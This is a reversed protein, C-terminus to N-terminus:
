NLNWFKIQNDDAVSILVDEDNLSGFSVKNIDCSDEHASEINHLVSFLGDNKNSNLVKISGDGSGLAILSRKEDKLFCCTYVARSCINEFSQFLNFKNSKGEKVFIKLSKDESVACFKSGDFNFDVCWVTSTFHGSLTQFCYWDDDNEDQKYIKITDDYSCSLLINDTPSWKLNKVDQTHEQLVAVCDFDDEGLIEWIWVTKDRGCTALFNQDYSFEVSKVENEHGELTAVLEFNDTTIDFINVKSDFGATALYQSSKALHRLTRKNTDKNLKIVSKSNTTLNFNVLNEKEFYILNQNNNIQIFDWITDESTIAISKVEIM